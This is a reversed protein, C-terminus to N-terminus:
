LNHTLVLLYCFVTLLVLIVLDAKSYLARAICIRIKQGSCLSIGQLLAFFLIFTFLWSDYVVLQLIFLLARSNCLVGHSANVNIVTSGAFTM